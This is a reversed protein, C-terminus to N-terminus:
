EDTMAELFKRGKETLEYVADYDDGAEVNDLFDKRAEFIDGVTMINTATFMNGDDKMATVETEIMVTNKPIKMIINIMEGTYESNTEGM